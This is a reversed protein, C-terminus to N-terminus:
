ERVPSKDAGIRLVDAPTVITMDHTTGDDEDLAMAIETLEAEVDPYTAFRHVRRAIATRFDDTQSM